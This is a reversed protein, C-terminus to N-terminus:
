SKPHQTKYSNYPLLPHKIRFVVENLPLLEMEKFVNNLHSEPIGGILFLVVDPKLIEMENIIIPYCNTASSGKLIDWKPTAKNEDVKSINNWIFATDSKNFKRNLKRCFQWFPSHRGKGLEFNKYQRLLTEVITQNSIGDRLCPLNRKYGM